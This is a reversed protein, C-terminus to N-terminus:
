WGDVLVRRFGAPRQPIQVFAGGGLAAQAVYDLDADNTSVGVIGNQKQMVCPVTAGGSRIDQRQEVARVAIVLPTILVVVLRRM